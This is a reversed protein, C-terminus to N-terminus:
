KPFCPSNTRRPLASVDCPGPASGGIERSGHAGHQVLQSMGKPHCMFLRSGVPVLIHLDMLTSDLTALFMVEVDGAFTVRFTGVIEQGDHVVIGIAKGGALFGGDRGLILGIRQVGVIWIIIVHVSHSIPHAQGLQISILQCVQVPIHVAKTHAVQQTIATPLSSGARVQHLIPFFPLVSVVLLTVVVHLHLLSAVDVVTGFIGRTDVAAVAPAAQSQLFPGPFAVKTARDRDSAAAAFPAGPAEKSLGTCGGTAIRAIGIMEGHTPHFFMAFLLEAQVAQGQGLTGRVRAEGGLTAAASPVLITPRKLAGMAINVHWGSTAIRVM